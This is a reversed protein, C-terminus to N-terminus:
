GESKIKGKLQNKTRTDFYVTDTKLRKAKGRMLEKTAKSVEEASMNENSCDM